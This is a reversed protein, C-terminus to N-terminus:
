DFKSLKYLLSYLDNQLQETPIPQGDSGAMKVVGNKHRNELEERIASIKVQLELRTM